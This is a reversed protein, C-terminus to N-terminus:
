ILVEEKDSMTIDILDNPTCGLARCIKIINGLCPKRADIEYHSIMAQEWGICDGLKSQSMGLLKRRERMSEGFSKIM